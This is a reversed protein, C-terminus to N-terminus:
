RYYRENAYDVYMFHKRLEVYSFFYRDFGVYQVQNHTFLVCENHIVYDPIMVLNKESFSFGRGVGEDKSEETLSVIIKKKVTLRRFTRVQTTALLM